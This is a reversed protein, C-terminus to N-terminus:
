KIQGTQQIHKESRNAITEEHRRENKKARCAM